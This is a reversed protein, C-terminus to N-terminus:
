LSRVHSDHHRLIVPLDSNWGNKCLFINLSWGVSRQTPFGGAIPPKGWLICTVRFINGIIVDEHFLCDESIHHIPWMTGDTCTIAIFDLCILILVPTGTYEIFYATIVETNQIVILRDIMRKLYPIWNELISMNHRRIARIHTLPRSLGPESFSKHGLRRGSM